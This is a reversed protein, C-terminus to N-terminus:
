NKESLLFSFHLGTAYVVRNTIFVFSIRKNARGRLVPGLRMFLADEACRSPLPWGYTCSHCNVGTKDLIISQNDRGSPVVSYTNYNIYINLRNLYVFYLKWFFFFHKLSVWIRQKRPIDRSNIKFRTSHLYRKLDVTLNWRETFTISKTSKVLYKKDMFILRSFKLFLFLSNNRKCKFHQCLRCVYLAVRKRYFELFPSTGTM